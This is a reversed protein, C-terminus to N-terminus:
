AELSLWKRATRHKNHIVRGPMLFQGNVPKPLRGILNVRLLELNITAGRHLLPMNIKQKGAQVANIAEAFVLSYVM